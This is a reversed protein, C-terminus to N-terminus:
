DHLFSVHLSFCVSIKILITFSYNSSAQLSSAYRIGNRFHSIMVNFFTAAAAGINDFRNSRSLM